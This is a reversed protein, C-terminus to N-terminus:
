KRAIIITHVEAFGDGKTYEKSIQKIVEFGNITLISTLFANSYYHFYTRDGTGGKMFGSQAYDGEVFSIYVVGKDALLKYSDKILKISDTESLYPLCFGCLIANFTTTITDIHRCDKVEFDATPNNAKALSIMNEAVDIGTIIFRPMKSLIYKTINGPGCGIELVRADTITIVDCFADYTDNYLNLHMFKDEYLKAVKNWTAVTEKQADM